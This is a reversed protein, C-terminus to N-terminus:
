QLDKALEAIIESEGSFHSYAILSDHVNELVNIKENFNFENGLNFETNESFIKSNTLLCKYVFLNKSEADM